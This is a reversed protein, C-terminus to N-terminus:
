GHLADYDESDSFEFCTKFVTGMKDPFCEILVVELWVYQQFVDWIISAVRRAIRPHKLKSKFGRCTWVGEWEYYNDEINHTSLHLLPRTPSICPLRDRLCRNAEIIKAVHESHSRVPIQFVKLHIQTKRDAAM